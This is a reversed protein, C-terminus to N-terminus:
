RAALYSSYLEAPTMKRLDVDDSLEIGLDQELIIALEVARSSDVDFQEGLTRDGAVALGAQGLWRALREVFADSTLVDNGM